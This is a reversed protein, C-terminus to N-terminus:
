GPTRTSPLRRPPSECGTATSTATPWASTTRRRRGAPRPPARPRPPSPSARRPPRPFSTPTGSAKTETRRWRRPRSPATTSGFKTSRGTSSGAAAPGYAGIRWIDSDGVNGTFTRTAVQQGDVYFRVTTGDYTTALHEWVGVTPARGSDLYNATGKNLTQYYRGVTNPVWIMLSGDQGTSWSRLVTADRKTTRKKVWAELTFGTDYFTGLGPLDVGDDVGDFDLGSGFRGATWSAGVVTGAQGNGSVDSLTTGANEDFSYAAVLGEGAANTPGAGAACLVALLGALVPLLLRGRLGSSRLFPPALTPVRVDM